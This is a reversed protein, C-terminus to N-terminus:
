ENIQAKEQLSEDPKSYGEEEDIEEYWQGEELMDDYENYWEGDDGEYWYDDYDDPRTLGKPKQETEKEVVEGKEEAEKSPTLWTVKHSM